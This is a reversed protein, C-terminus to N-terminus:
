PHTIRLSFNVPQKLNGIDRLNACYTGNTLTDTLQSTLGPGTRITKTVTCEEGEPVGYGLEMLAPLLGPRDLPSLSALNISVSGAATVTFSYFASNGPELIADFRETAVSPTTTTTNSPSTTSNGGCGACLLVLALVVLLPFRM